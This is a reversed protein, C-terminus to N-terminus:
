APATAAPPNACANWQAPDIENMSQAIRVSFTPM